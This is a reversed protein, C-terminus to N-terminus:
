IQCSCYPVGSKSNGNCGCCAYTGSGCTVQCSSGGCSYGCSSAGRGGALCQILILSPSNILQSQARALIDKEIDIEEASGDSLRGVTQRQLAYGGAVYLTESLTDISKERQNSGETDESSDLALQIRTFGERNNVLIQREYLLLVVDQLEVPMTQAINVQQVPAFRITLDPTGDPHGVVSSDFILVINGNRAIHMSINGPLRAQVSKDSASKDVPSIKSHAGIGTVGIIGVTILLLVSVLAVGKHWTRLWSFFSPTRTQM